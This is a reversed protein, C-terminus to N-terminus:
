VRVLAVEDPDRLYPRLLRWATVSPIGARMHEPIYDRNYTTGVQGIKTTGVALLDAEMDPNYGELLKLAIAYCAMKVDAPVLTDSTTTVQTTIPDVYSNGRPFQLVQTPDAKHGAFSLGDIMRTASILAKRKNAPSSTEWKRANLLFSFYMDANEVTGYMGVSVPDAPATGVVFDDGTCEATSAGRYRTFIRDGDAIVIAPDLTATYEGYGVAVLVGIGYDQYAAGNVSVQPQGGAESLAPGSFDALPVNFYVSASQGVQVSRSAM